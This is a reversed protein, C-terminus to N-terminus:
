TLFSPGVDFRISKEWTREQKKIIDLHLGRLVDYIWFQRHTLYMLSTLILNAFTDERDSSLVLFIELLFLVVALIRVTTCLGLFTVVIFGFAGPFYQLSSFLSIVL